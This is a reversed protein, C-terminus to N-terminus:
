PIYQEEIKIVTNGHMQIRYPLERWHLTRNNILESFESFSIPEEQSEPEGTEYTVMQIVVNEDVHLEELGDDVNEIFFDNPTCEERTAETCVGARIAADKAAEGTLMAADDFLITQDEAHVEHIFGFDKKTFTVSELVQEFVNRIPDTPAHYFGTFMYVYDPLAVVVNENEYLGTAHYQLAPEGGLMIELYTGDSLKFNSFNTGEVFEQATYTDLNNQFLSITITPPAETGPIEGAILARNEPTDEILVIAHSEREGSNSNVEHIFYNKPYTFQLGYQESGYRPMSQETKAPIFLLVAGGIGLVIIAFIILNKMIYLGTNRSAMMM